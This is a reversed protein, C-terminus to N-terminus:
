QLAIDATSICLTIFVIFKYSNGFQGESSSTYRYNLSVDSIMSCQVYM